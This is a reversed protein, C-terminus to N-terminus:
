RAEAGRSQEPIVFDTGDERRIAQTLQNITQAKAESLKRSLWDVLCDEGMIRYVHVPHKQGTRYARGVWQQEDCHRWWPEYLVVHQAFDMNLGAGGVGFSCVRGQVKIIGSPPCHQPATQNM